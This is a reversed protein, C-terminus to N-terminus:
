NIVADSGNSDVIHQTKNESEDPHDSSQTIVCASSGLQAEPLPLLKNEQSTHVVVPNSTTLTVILAKNGNTISWKDHSKDKIRGTHKHSLIDPSLM